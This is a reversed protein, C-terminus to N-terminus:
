GSLLQLKLISCSPITIRGLVQGGGVTSAITKYLKNDEILFGVSKCTVPILPDLDELYEWGAPGSKSDLWKIFVLKM